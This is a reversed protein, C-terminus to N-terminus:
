EHRKLNALIKELTSEFLRIEEDSFEHYFIESMQQSVDQYCQSLAKAKETLLVRIQRRDAKDYARMVQGKEEMRDLMSTISTKALSTKLALESIPLNDEQWLVYLIRGHPGNLDEIGNEKLLRNFIRDQIQKIRSILFGGQTIDIM